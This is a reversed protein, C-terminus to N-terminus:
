KGICFTSFIRDLVEADVTEGTIEGLAQLADRVEIIVLEAPLGAATGARAKELSAVAKELARKHRADAIVADERIEARGTSDTEYIADRLPDMSRDHKASIKLPRSGSLLSEIEAESFAQALDSKNIVSLFQKGEIARAIARDEESIPLSGDLVFIVLDAVSIKDYVLEVGRAEILDETDRIGATDTLEVPIGRIRVKERILDRTTGPIHTVIARDEGVLRNLISSKGVNPKGAIVAQLGERYLRGEEYTAALRSIDGALGGAENAFTETDPLSTEEDPFDISAELRAALDIARSAFGRIKEQLSGKLHSMARALEQESSAAISAMVAEAQSLDMRNNLFARKTFEGPEAQRAGARLVEHLINKLILPGGHCYIELTDEGTYTQPAGMFAILVEDLVAGSTGIIDGHYLHHSRLSPSKRRPRFLRELISRSNPGSVRIVGISGEGPPTAIAAITGTAEVAM